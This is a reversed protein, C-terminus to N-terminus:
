LGVGLFFNGLALVLGVGLAISGGIFMADLLRINGALYDGLSFDRIATTLAIGPVLSIVGGLMSKEMTFHLLPLLYNGFQTLVLCTTAVIAGSLMYYVLKNMNRSMMGIAFLQLLCGAIFAILADGISGNFLLAFCASGIACALPRFRAPFFPLQEIEALRQEATELDLRHQEIDRSLANLAALRGLHVNTTPVCRLHTIPNHRDSEMSAFIGNTLVYLYVNELQYAHAVRDMTEQVRFVEGGNVLLLNGMRICLNMIRQETTSADM